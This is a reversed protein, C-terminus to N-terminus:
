FGTSLKNFAKWSLLLRSFIIQQEWSFLDSTLVPPFPSTLVGVEQVAQPPLQEGLSSLQM